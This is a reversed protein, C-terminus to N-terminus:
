SRSPTASKEASPTPSPSPGLAIGGDASAVPTGEASLVDGRPSQGMVAGVAILLVVGLAGLAFAFALLRNPRRDREEAEIPEYPGAPEPYTGDDMWAAAVPAPVVHRGTPADGAVARDGAGRDAAVAITRPPRAMAAAAPIAHVPTSPKDTEPAVALAPGPAAAITAAADRPRVGGAQRVGGIEVARFRDLAFGFEAASPYREHAELAMARLVLDDVDVPLGPDVASPPEPRTRLRDLATAAPSAGSFPRRGTLAEYLVVGLSYIDSAPTTPDGLVQEPSAYPASGEFAGPVSAATDRARGIGFDVVRVTGDRDLLINGPKVDRHVIGASHAAQLAKATDRGVRIAEDVPLRGDRALVSGLDMGDVLEMVVYASATEADIGTDHIAVINPHVLGAAHRAEQRVRAAAQPDSAYAPRLVKIAVARDRDQDHARYVTAMEGQGITELVRYRGALVRGSM